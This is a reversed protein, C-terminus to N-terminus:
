FFMKAVFPLFFFYGMFDIIVIFSRGIINLVGITCAMISPLFVIVALTRTSPSSASKSACVKLKA